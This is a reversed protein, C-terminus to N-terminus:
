LGLPCYPVTLEAVIEGAGDMTLKELHRSPACLVTVFAIRRRTVTPTDLYDRLELVRGNLPVVM